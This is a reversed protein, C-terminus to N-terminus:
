QRAPRPDARPPTEEVVILEETAPDIPIVIREAPPVPAAQPEPEAGPTAGIQSLPEAPEVATSAAAAGPEPEHVVLTGLIVLALAFALGTLGFQIRKFPIQGM